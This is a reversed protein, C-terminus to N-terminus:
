LLRSYFSAPEVRNGNVAEAAARLTQDTVAAYRRMMRETKWGGLGHCDAGRLGLQAGDNSHRPLSGASRAPLRSPQSRGNRAKTIVALSVLPQRRSNARIYSFLRHETKNVKSTESPLHCVTIALHTRNALRKL